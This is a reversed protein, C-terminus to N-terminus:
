EDEEMLKVFNIDAKVYKQLPKINTYVNLAKFQYSSAVNNHNNKDKVQLKGQAWHMYIKKIIDTVMRNDQQESEGLKIKSGFITCLENIHTRIYEKCTTTIISKQIITDSDQSHKLGFIKNLEQVHQLKIDALTMRSVIHDSGYLDREISQNFPINSKELQINYLMQRKDSVLYYNFFLKAKLDTCTDENFMHNFFYKDVKLKDDRNETHMLKNNLENATQNDVIDIAEFRDYLDDKKEKQREVNEDKQLLQVTYNQMKLMHVVMFNYYVKSIIHERANHYLIRQLAPDVALLSREVAGIMNKPYTDNEKLKQLIMNIKDSNVNEFDNFCNFLQVKNIDCFQRKNIAFYLTNDNLKRARLLMQMGDRALNTSIMNGYAVDFAPEATYSIGTQITPTFGCFDINKWSENVDQLDTKAVDCDYIRIEKDQTSDNIKIELNRLDSKTTSVNFVKKNNNISQIVSEDYKDQSIQIAKRGDLYSKNNKLLLIKKDDYKCEQSCMSNLFDISRQLVFADACIVIKANLIIEVLIAFTAQCNKLTSASFQNLITEIEDLVVIQYNILATKTLSELQICLNTADRYEDASKFDLYNKIGFERFEGCIFHTFTKRQSIFLINHNSKQRIFKKIFTSKGKGMQADIMIYKFEDYVNKWQFQHQGNIEQCSIFKTEEELVVINETYNMSFFDNLINERILKKEDDTKM